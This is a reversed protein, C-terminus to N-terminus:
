FPAGLIEDIEEPSSVLNQDSWEKLLDVRVRWYRPREGTPLFMRKQSEEPCIRQIAKRLTHMNPIKSNEDQYFLWGNMLAESRVLIHDPDDYLLVGKEPVKGGKNQNEYRRGRDVIYQILWYCLDSTHTNDLISNSQIKGIEGPCQIRTDEVEYQDALWLCHEAIKDQRVWSEKQAQPLKDLYHAADDTCRIYLVREALAAADQPSLDESRFNLLDGNNATLVIRVNGLLQQPPKFKENINHTETTILKRIPGSRGGAWTYKAPLNEDAAILPNRKLNSNFDNVLIEAADTFAGNKWIRALGALLLSKGIARRGHLYLLSLAKDTKPVNSVWKRLKEGGLALLWADIEPHCTPKLARRAVPLILTEGDLRPGTANLDYAVNFVWTGYDIVLKGIARAKINGNADVTNLAVRSGFPALYLAAAEKVDADFFDTYHGNVFFSYRRGLAVILRSSLFKKPSIGAEAAWAEIEEDTYPTSREGNTAKECYEALIEQDEDEQEAIKRAIAVRASDLKALVTDKTPAGPEGAMADISSAFYQYIESNTATHFKEVLWYTASTLTNDRDGLDAFARGELIAELAIGTKKLKPSRRQNKLTHALTEVAERTIKGPIETVNALTVPAPLALIADVDIAKGDAATAIARRPTPASPVFYPQSARAGAPDAYSGLLANFRHFFPPWEQPTIPRNPRLILRFKLKGTEDESVFNSWSTYFIHAKDAIKAGIHRVQDLTCGDFDLPIVHLSQLDALKRGSSPGPMFMDQRSKANDPAIEHKGFAEALEQWTFDRPIPKTGTVGAFFTLSFKDMLLGAAKGTEGWHSLAVTRNEAPRCTLVFGTKMPGM